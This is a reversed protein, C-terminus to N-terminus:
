KYAVVLNIPIFPGMELSKLLDRELVLSTHFLPSSTNHVLFCCPHKTVVTENALGEKMQKDERRQERVLSAM